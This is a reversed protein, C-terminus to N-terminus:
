NSNSVQNSNSNYVRAFIFPFAILFNLFFAFCGLWGLEAWGPWTGTGGSLHTGGTLPLGRGRTGERVRETGVPALSDTGTEEGALGEEREPKRARKALRRATVGAQGDERERHRPGASDAGGKERGGHFLAHASAGTAPLRPWTTRGGTGARKSCWGCGCERGRRMERQRARVLARGVSDSRAPSGRGGGRDDLEDSAV